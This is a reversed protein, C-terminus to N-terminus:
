SRDVNQIARIVCHVFEEELHIKDKEFSIHSPKLKCQAIQM